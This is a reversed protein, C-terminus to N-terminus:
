LHQYVIKVEYGLRTELATKFTPDFEPVNWFRFGLNSFGWEPQFLYENIDYNNMSVVCSVASKDYSWWDDIFSYDGNFLEKKCHPCIVSDLGNEGTDFVTKSEVIELGFIQLKSLTWFHEPEQLIAMSGEALRYGGGGGLVCDSIKPDVIQRSVLWNLIELAKTGANPYNSTKPVFGISYDSM